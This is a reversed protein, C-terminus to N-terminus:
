STRTSVSQSINIVGEMLPFLPPLGTLGSGWIQYFYGMNPPIGPPMGYPTMGSTITDTLPLTTQGLLPTTTETWNFEVATPDTDLLSKSKKASFLLIAGTLNIPVGAGVVLVVATGPATAPQSLTLTTGSVNTIITGTQIGTGTISMGATATAGAFNTVSTSNLSTTGTAPLPVGPLQFILTPNFSQGQEIFFNQKAAGM